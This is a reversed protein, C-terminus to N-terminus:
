EEQKGLIRVETELSIGFRDHVQSAMVAILQEVDTSRAQGCNIIFNAHKPSVMAQGITFGKLGCAEILRAAYDGTPNRFVSGCNFTGIPQSEARQRLLARIKDAGREDTTVPFTFYAGLFAEQSLCFGRGHVTRYGITYDSPERYDMDGTRRIIQVRKVWEWTQGGFAGANMSLAGGVTGPIGALFAAKPMGLAVCFRALKACAVGAGAFVTGDAEQYLAQLKRTSIVAGKIGSDRILVNSGLGLWTCSVDSPLQRLYGALAQLDSPVVYREALGGIHWSTLPALCVNRQEENMAPECPYHRRSLDLM